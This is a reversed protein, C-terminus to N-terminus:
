VSAKLSKCVRNVTEELTRYQIGTHATLKDGVFRYHHQAARATEKTLLPAKGTVLSRFAEFRWVMEALIPNVRWKPPKKDLAKAVSEFFHKYTVTGGSVIFREGSIASFLLRCAAESVDAVDVYNLLGESYFPKENFVYKFLQTSSKHWDGEGLIVSPNLIVANLGEAIGRWVELEALYKTVAYNSNSSSDIWRQNEDIAIIENSNKQIRQPRGLAAVSSIHCLKKIGVNLCANVVNATGEVNVRHMQRKEKQVFSVMAATHVVRDVNSIAKELGMVDLVDGEVWNLDQAIDRLLTRDSSKRHLVSVSHGLALLQKSITSGLLGTAGTVLIKM